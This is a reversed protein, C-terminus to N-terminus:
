WPLPEGCDVYVGATAAKSGPPVGEDIVRVLYNRMAAQINVYEAETPLSPLGALAMDSASLVSAYGALPDQQRASSLGVTTAAFVRGSCAQPGVPYTPVAVPIAALDPPGSAITGGRLVGMAIVGVALVLLCGLIM